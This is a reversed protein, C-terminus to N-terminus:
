LDVFHTKTAGTSCAAAHHARFPIPSANTMGHTCDMMASTYRALDRPLAKPMMKVDDAKPTRAVEAHEHCDSISILSPVVLLNVGANIM